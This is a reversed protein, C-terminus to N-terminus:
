VQRHCKAAEKTQDFIRSGAIIYDSAGRESIVEAPVGGLTVNERECSKNIVAQAAIAVGNSIRIPGFLKAGPGIYCNDGIEPASNQTGAATGINVGSHIRCNEGIKASPNVIIPGRHAISLGAGFVFPPIEFNLRISEKYYRYHWYGRVLSAILGRKGIWYEYHRLIIQYKWIDDGFFRPRTRREGRSLRDGELMRELDYVAM